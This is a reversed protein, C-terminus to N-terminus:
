YLITNANAKFQDSTPSKASHCRPAATFFFFLALCEFCFTCFFLSTRKILSLVTLGGCVFRASSAAPTSALCLWGIFSGLSLSSHRGGHGYVGRGHKISKVANVM